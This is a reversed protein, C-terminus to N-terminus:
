AFRPRLRRWGRPRTIAGSLHRARLRLLAVADSTAVFPNSVVRGDRLSMAAVPEADLSALLVEGDLEPAEDLEALTRLASADEANAIRLAVPPQGTPTRPRRVNADRAEVSGRTRRRAARSLDDMRERSAIATLTSTM